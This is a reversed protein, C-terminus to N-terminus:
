KKGKRQEMDRRFGEIMKMYHTLKEGGILGDSKVFKYEIFDLVQQQAEDPLEQIAEDITGSSKPGIGYLLWIASVGFFHAIVEANKPAIKGGASWKHMGQASIRKGTKREIAESLAQYSMGGRLAEFRQAFGSQDEVM